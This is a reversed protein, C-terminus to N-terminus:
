GPPHRTPTDHRPSQSGQSRGPDRHLRAVAARSTLMREFADVPQPRAILYGQFADCQHAMLFQHQATTEVGEAVVELDLGHGVRIITQVVLADNAHKPLCAIFSQDIKLQDLPLRSLYALSSYGTGFDDLSIRIGAARLQALKAAADALNDLIASETLELKLRAPDAGTAAVVARVGDVFTADAFQRASVNVAIGLAHTLPSGAWAALQECARRLAWNGIPVILNNEEALPIFVDPPVQEGCPRTWRLLGEAGTVRGRRDTQAQMFLSLGDHAIAGRLDEILTERRALEVQMAPEFRCVRDRGDRKARYMALEAEKLVAEPADHWTDLTTWGISATLMISTGAVLAFPERLAQGMREGYRQVSGADVVTGGAPRHMLLAFTGGGFHSLVYQPDAMARLRRAVMALLRDGDAHGRLDNVRKFHDLDLVLLASARLDGADLLQELRDRLFRRNPLDTLPDFFTMREVSAHAEREATLDLMATVFHSIAGNDDRVISVTSRILRPPGQKVKIWREGQWFDDRPALTAPSVAAGAEGSETTLLKAPRGLVEAAAYGTLETFAQNVRQIMGAADTVMLAAQMQFAVAALRLEAEARRRASIDQAYEIVYQPMGDADHTVSIDLLVPIRRGDRTVQETEVLSHDRRDIEHRALQREVVLDPPYLMDVSQGALQEPTYGREAAFTPNVATIRNTPADFIAVGFAAHRFAHAWLRMRERAQVRETVDRAVSLVGDVVGAGAYLPVKIIEVQRQRGDGAPIAVIRTHPKGLRMVQEDLAQIEADLGTGVVPGDTHGLLTGPEIGFLTAVRDNGEVHVGDRNRVWMADPSADFLARLKGRQERLERTRRGVSRRLTWVWLVMLVIVAAVIAAAIRAMHLYPTLFLPHHLWRRRLRAREAPTILSMGHEVVQLVALNGKRVARRLQGTYLVFAKSFKGLAAYRFLYFNAPDEDMCFIRVNGHVAAEIIAKYDPFLQLDDIGQARLKGACADGQEVAVPFGRLSELDHVGRIRQSAYIAVSHEAYPRSFDYLATRAPTRYIMDIVDARGSLLEAQAQSWQMPVVDVKIGTHAQFLRWMDVEYGEPKGSADLFLFPPYNDDTVVRLHAPADAPRAHRARAPAAVSVCTAAVVILSLGMYACIRRDM